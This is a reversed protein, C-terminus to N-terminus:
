GSTGAPLCSVPHPMGTGTDVGGRGCVGWDKYWSVSEERLKEVEMMLKEDAMSISRRISIEGCRSCDCKEKTKVEVADLAVAMLLIIGKFVEKYYENIGMLVLANDLVGIFIVGAVAGGVKGRGGMISVGGLVVATMTDFAYNSAATPQASNARATM